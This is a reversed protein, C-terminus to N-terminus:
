GNPSGAPSAGDSRAVARRRCRQAVARRAPSRDTGARGGGGSATEGRARRGRVATRVAGRFRVARVGDGLERLQGGVEAVIDDGRADLEEATRGLLPTLAALRVRDSRHPQEIRRCCGCGTSRLRLRSSAPGAPSCPRCVRGTSPTTSWRSRRTPASWSPSTAPNSSGRHEGRRRTDRWRRPPRRHRGRPRGRDAEPAARGRPIGVQQDARRRGAASVAAAAARCGDSRSKPRAGDVRHM